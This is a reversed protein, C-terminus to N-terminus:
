RMLLTHNQIIGEVIVRTHTHTHFKINIYTGRDGGVAHVINHVLEENLFSLEGEPLEM